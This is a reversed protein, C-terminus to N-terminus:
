SVSLIKDRTGTTVMPELFYPFSRRKRKSSRFHTVGPVHGSVQYVQLSLRHRVGLWRVHPTTPLVLFLVNDGAQTGSRLVDVHDVPGTEDELM